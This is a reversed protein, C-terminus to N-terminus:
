ERPCHSAVAQDLTLLLCDNLWAPTRLFVSSQGVKRSEKSTRDVSLSHLLNKGTTVNYDVRHQRPGCHWLITHTIQLHCIRLLFLFQSVKCHNSAHQQKVSQGMQLITNAQRWNVCYKHWYVYHAAWLFPSATNSHSIRIIAIYVSNTHPGM